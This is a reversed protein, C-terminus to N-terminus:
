TTATLLLLLLLLLVGVKNVASCSPRLPGSWAATCHATCCALSDTTVIIEVSDRDRGAKTDAHNPTVRTAIQQVSSYLVLCDRSSNYRPSVKYTGYSLLM